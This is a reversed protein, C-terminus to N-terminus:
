PKELLWICIHSNSWLSPQAYFFQYKQVQHQLLSKLTGQVTLLDFWDFRFSVLGSYENSHQLELLNPWKICLVSESSFVRVSPFVSPLFLLPRCLVLHNSPIMWWHVHTHALEPLCHLVPFGPMSCDMPDCLTQCSQTVSCCSISHYEKQLICLYLIM